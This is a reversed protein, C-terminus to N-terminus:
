GLGVPGSHAEKTRLVPHRQGAIYVLRSIKSKQPSRTYREFIERFVVRECAQEMDLWDQSVRGKVADIDDNEHGIIPAHRDAALSSM